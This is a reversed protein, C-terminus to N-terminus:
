SWPRAWAVAFLGAVLAVTVLYGNRGDGLQSAGLAYAILVVSSVGVLRRESEREGSRPPM